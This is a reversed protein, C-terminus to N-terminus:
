DFLQWMRIKGGFTQQQENFSQLSIDHIFVKRPKIVVDEGNRAYEYLKKGNVKIASYIPPLQSIEGEFFSLANQVDEKAIKKDSKSVINGEIDYTDTSSGFQIEALYEKDSDCYDILKTAKGIFLPLVGQAFPDLTGSHGIQKIGLIKRVIAVVDHSTIGKPKNINLVGFM